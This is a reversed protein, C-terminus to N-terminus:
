LSFYTNKAITFLWARIDKKGDFSDLSRLAKFFTEQTIEEALSVNQCLSLVFKYVEGFYEAYIKEFDQVKGGGTM